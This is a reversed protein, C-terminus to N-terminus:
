KYVINFYLGKIILMSIVFLLSGTAIYVIGMTCLDQLVKSAHWADYFMPYYKHVWNQKPAEAATKSFFYGWNKYADHHVISDAMANLATQVLLLLAIIEIM